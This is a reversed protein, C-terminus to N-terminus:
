KLVLLMQIARYAVSIGKFRPWKGKNYTFYPFPLKNKNGKPFAIMKM